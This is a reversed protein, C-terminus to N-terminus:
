DLYRLGLGYRHDADHALEQRWRVEALSISRPRNEGTSSPAVSLRGVTRVVLITGSKFPHTTEIYLGANSFNRMVGDATRAARSSAYPQCVIAAASSNQEATRQDAAVKIESENM